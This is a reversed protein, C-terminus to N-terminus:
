ASSDTHPLGQQARWPVSSADEVRRGRSQTELDVEERLTDKPDWFLKLTVFSLMLCSGAGLHM